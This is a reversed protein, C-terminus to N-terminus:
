NYNIKRKNELFENFEKQHSSIYNKIDSLLISTAFTNIQEQSLKM